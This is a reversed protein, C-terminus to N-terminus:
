VGVGEGGRAIKVLVGKRNGAFGRVRSNWGLRRAIHTRSAEDLALNAIAACGQEGVQRSMEPRWKFM